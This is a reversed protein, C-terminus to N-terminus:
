FQGATMYFLTSKMGKWWICLPLWRSLCDSHEPLWRSWHPQDEAQLQGPEVGISSLWIETFDICDVIITISLKVLHARMLLFADSFHWTICAMIKLDNSLSSLVIWTTQSVSCVYRLLGTGAVPCLLLTAATPPSACVLFGSLTATMRRFFPM